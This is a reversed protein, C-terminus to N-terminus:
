RMGPTVDLSVDIYSASRAAYTRTLHSSDLYLPIGNDDVIPCRKVPCLHAVPDILVAGSDRAIAKLAENIPQYRAEFAAFDFSAGGQPTLPLQGLRVSDILSAPSIEAANPINLVLYTAKGKSSLGRLFDVLRQRSGPDSLQSAYGAWHAAVVVAATSNRGALRGLERIADPCRGEGTMVEKVLKCVRQNGALTAGNSHGPHDKIVQSIRPAYQEMNSDGIFLTSAGRRNPLEFYRLPGFTEDTSGAPPYEWDKSAAQIRDLSEGHLRPPLGGVMVVLGLVASGALAAGWQKPLRVLSGRRAPLEVLRYTLWALVVAAAIAGVRDLQTLAAGKAMKAFVLVPWHWLYLPYSVLGVWVMPRAALVHRNLWAAPGASIALSAGLVPMVAWYGPFDRDKDLLLVGAIILLMGTASRADSSGPVRKGKHIAYALACGAMLEWFRSLPWYFAAMPHPYVLVVNIAFSIAAIGAIMRGMAKSRRKWAFAVAVPWVIYFQEEVGLSWLHLLPKTDAAQDFYGSESWLLFNSVFGAGALLHKGLQRFEESLLVYWGVLGSAAAVLVLAPFIRRIRRRYFDLFSFSGAELSQLIIGTILFGSIVFFIDVGVFGGKVWSPFAHFAVVVAVAIARLGDIDARYRM